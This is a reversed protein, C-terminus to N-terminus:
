AGSAKALLAGLEASIEDAVKVLVAALAPIDEAKLRFTPGSISVAAVVTGTYNRIPAAVCRVGEENEENDIAYGREHIQALEANLSELTTITNKTVRTMGHQQVIDAVAEDPLFALMVKGVASCHMCIRRGVSSALRVSREPEVKDVYLMEGHDLVCLHVTEGTEFALHELQTRACERISLNSVAKSGLEFLKMGLRYRGTLPNRNVLRERELVMLLRFITSKHLGVAETVETLAMESGSRSLVDLIAIARDLVQVKYTHM